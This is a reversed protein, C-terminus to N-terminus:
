LYWCDSLESVFFAM